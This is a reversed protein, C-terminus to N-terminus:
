REENALEELWDGLRRWVERRDQDANVPVTTHGLMAFSSFESGQTRPSQESGRIPAKQDDLKSDAINQHSSRTPRKSIRADPEFERM